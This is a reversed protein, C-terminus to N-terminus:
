YKPRTHGELVVMSIEIVSVPYFIVPKWQFRQIDLQNDCLGRKVIHM